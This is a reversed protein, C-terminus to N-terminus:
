KKDKPTPDGYRAVTITRQMQHVHSLAKSVPVVSQQELAQQLLTITDGSRDIVDELAWKFKYSHTDPEYTHENWLSRFIVGISSLGLIIMLTWWDAGYGILMDIGIGIVVTLWTREEALFQALRVYQLTFAWIVGWLLAALCRGILLFDLTIQATTNM